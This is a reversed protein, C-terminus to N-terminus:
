QVVVAPNLKFASSTIQRFGLVPEKWRVIIQVFKGHPFGAGLPEVEYVNWYRFFEATGDRDVDATVSEALAATATAGGAGDSFDPPYPLAAPDVRGLDWAARFAVAGSDSADAFCAALSTPTCATLRNANPALRTDNYDWRYVNESLDNAIASAMSIRKAFHNARVVIVQLSAFGAMGILLVGIAIMAEILTTGRPRRRLAHLPRLTRM